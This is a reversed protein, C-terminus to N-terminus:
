RRAPGTASGNYAGLQLEANLNVLVGDRILILPFSRSVSRLERLVWDYLHETGRGRFFPEDGFEVVIDGPRLGARAVGSGPLVKTIKLAVQDAAGKIQAPLAMELGDFGLSPVREQLARTAYMEWFSLMGETRKRAFEDALKEAVTRAEASAPVDLTLRAAYIRREDGLRRAEELATVASRRIIGKFAQSGNISVTIPRDLDVLRDHLFLTIRRAWAVTVDIRDPPAVVARVLGQRTDSEVWRVQRSVPVIAPHPVRVVERPYVQRPRGDLWRLVDDYHEQFGEHARDTFERYTIDYGFGVLIDSLARPGDIMRINRDRTGELVYVPTGGLNRLLLERSDGETSVPVIAALWGPEGAGFAISYNSGLSIGTSVVRDPNIRYRARVAAVVAHAQEPHFIEYPLREDTRPGATVSPTMVPAAIIWGARAAAETWVRIMREAGSRAQSAQAPPGGHMAFILPWQADPTYGPPLQVLVPVTPGAPVSVTLEHFRENGATSAPAAELRAPGRRMAEELDHFAVRSLGVLSPDSKLRSEAQEHEADSAPWLYDRVLREYPSGAPATANQTPVTGSFSVVSVLAAAAVGCYTIRGLAM